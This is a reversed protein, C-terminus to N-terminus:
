ENKLLSLSSAIHSKPLSSTLTIPHPSKPIHSLPFFNLIQASNHTQLNANHHCLSMKTINPPSGIPLFKSSQSPQVLLKCNLRSKPYKVQCKRNPSTLCFRNERKFRKHHLSPKRIYTMSRWGNHLFDTGNKLSSLSTPSIQVSTFTEQKFPVDFQTANTHVSTLHKTGVDTDRVCCSGELCQINILQPYAHYISSIKDM